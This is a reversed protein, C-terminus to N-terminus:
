GHRGSVTSRVLMVVNEYSIRGATAGPGNWCEVPSRAM